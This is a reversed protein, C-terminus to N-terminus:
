QVYGLARLQRLTEEDLAPESPEDSGGRGAASIWGLLHARLWAAELDGRAALNTRESPDAALDFLQEADRGRGAGEGQGWGLGTRPSWILKFRRSQASYIGGRVSSAAAFHIPEGLDDTTPLPRRLLSRGDSPFAGGEPAELGALAALTAHLDRTDTSDEIRAPSLRGPWSLALPIRLMEEYLTYGHLVGGHEFLEEGHDATVAVLTEERPVIAALESLLKGLERDAYALGGDYLGRVVTRGREDPTIRGQKIGLLAETSGDLGVAHSAQPAWTARDTPPPDYPNHPHIVHLYLFAKSGAPLSKVWALASRHVREANDNYGRTAPYSEILVEPAHHDFGLDTGYAPSVYVNGSFLGTSYGSRRFAQALTEGDEPALKWGGRSLFAKGTFLTKTSPLTNPANTRHRLALLGGQALADITPTLGAPGGFAGVRDARLADLVYVVVLRPPPGSTVGAPEPISRERPPGAWALGRWRATAGGDATAGGGHGGHADLRVRVLGSTGRLPIRLERAGRLRNWFSNSWYFRRIISGDARELTLEFRQGPQPRAPPEFTGVLWEDREGVRTALDIRSPGSQIAEFPIAGGIKELKAIGRPDAARVAAAVIGPLPAAESPILDIALRGLPLDAPLPIELPDRWPFSGLPRSGAFARVTATPLPASDHLDFAVTRAVPELHAIEIRAGDPSPALVVQGAGDRWPFWGSVFRNAGLSPPMALASAETVLDPALDDRFLPRLEEPARGECASLALACLCATRLFRKSLPPPSTTVPRLTDSSEGAEGLWPPERVSGVGTPISESPGGNVEGM